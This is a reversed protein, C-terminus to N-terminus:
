YYWMPGIFMPDMFEMQEEQAAQQQMEASENQEAALRAQFQMQKFSQYNAETGVYVCHCFQADAMWYRPAGDKGTFYKLKLQPLSQAHALKEPTDAPIMKFGAASLM